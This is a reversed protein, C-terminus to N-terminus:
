KCPYTQELVDLLVSGLPVWDKWKGSNVGQDLLKMAGASNIPQGKLCFLQPEKRALLLEANMALYASIAGDLWVNMSAQYEAKSANQLHYRVTPAAFTMPSFSLAILIWAASLICLSCLRKRNQISKM